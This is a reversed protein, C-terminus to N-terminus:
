PSSRVDLFGQRLRITDASKLQILESMLPTSCSKMFPTMLWLFPGQIPLLGINGSEPCLSWQRTEGSLRFNESFFLPHNLVSFVVNFRIGSNFLQASSLVWRPVPIFDYPAGLDVKGSQVLAQNIVSQAITVQEGRSNALDHDLITRANAIVPSEPLPSKPDMIALVAAVSIAVSVTFKLFGWIRAILTPRDQHEEDASILRRAAVAVSTPLPQNGLQKPVKSLIVGCHSCYVQSQQNDQGCSTCRIDSM